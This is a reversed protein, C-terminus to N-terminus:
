GCTLDGGEKICWVSGGESLRSILLRLKSGGSAWGTSDLDMFKAAVEGPASFRGFKLVLVMKELLLANEAIYM